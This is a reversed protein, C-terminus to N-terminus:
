VALELPFPFLLNIPCVLIAQELYHLIGFNGDASEIPPYMGIFIGLM